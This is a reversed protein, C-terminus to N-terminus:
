PYIAYQQFLNRDQYPSRDFLEAYLTIKANFWMNGANACRHYTSLYAMSAPIATNSPISTSYTTAAYKDDANITKPSVGLTKAVSMYGKFTHTDYGSSKPGLVRTRVDTREEITQISTEGSSVPQHRVMFIAQSFADNTATITYKMGKVRCRSYILAWQDFWLPQHGSNHASPKWLCSQFVVGQNVTGASDMAFGENVVYNLQVM